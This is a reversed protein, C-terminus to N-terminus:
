YTIKFMCNLIIESATEFSPINELLLLSGANSNLNQQLETLVFKWTRQAATKRFLLITTIVLPLYYM